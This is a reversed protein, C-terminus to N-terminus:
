RKVGQVCFYPISQLAGAKVQALGADGLLRQVEDTSYVRAAPNFLKMNLSFLASFAPETRGPRTMLDIVILRGGVPLAGVLREFLGAASDPSEQHLAGCYLMVEHGRPIADRRYDGPAFSIRAEAVSGRTLEQAIAMVGPLDFQTVRLGDHREALLRSFTGPGSGIDLLREGRGVEISELIMPALGVARSHMGMVFRRTAQPDDGLHASPPVAPAGRKVCEGLRAWLPYLQANYGLAGLMCMSSQPDLYAAFASAMAYSQGRKELLGLGALADLLDTTYHINSACHGAIQDATKPESAIATFVGLEVAASLAAAQWYGTAIDMLSQISM